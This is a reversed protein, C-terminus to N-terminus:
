KSALVADVEEGSTPPNTVLDEDLLSVREGISKSNGAVTM